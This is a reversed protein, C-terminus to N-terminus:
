SSRVRLPFAAGRAPPSARRWFNNKGTPRSSLLSLVVMQVFGLPSEWLELMSSLVQIFSGVCGDDEVEVGVEVVGGVVSGGGGGQWEVRLSREVVFGLFCFEVDKQVLPCVEDHFEHGEGLVSERDLFCM